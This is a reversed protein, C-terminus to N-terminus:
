QCQWPAPVVLPSLISPVKHTNDHMVLCTMGYNAIKWDRYTEDSFNEDCAIQTSFIKFM